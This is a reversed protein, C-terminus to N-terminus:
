SEEGDLLQDFFFMPPEVNFFIIFDLKGLFNLSKKFLTM